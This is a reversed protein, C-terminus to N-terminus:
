RTAEPQVQSTSVPAEALVEDPRLRLVRAIRRLRATGPVLRRQEMASVESQSLRGVKAGLDTQSLGLRRREVELRTM